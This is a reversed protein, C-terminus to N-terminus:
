KSERRAAWARRGPLRTRGDLRGREEVPAGAGESEAGTRDSQAEGTGSAVQVWLRPGDPLSTLTQIPSGAVSDPGLTEVCLGGPAIADSTEGNM